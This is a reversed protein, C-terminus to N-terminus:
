RVGSGCQVLSCAVGLVLFLAAFHGRRILLRDAIYFVALNADSAFFLAGVFSGITVLRLLWIRNLIAKVIGTIGNPVEPRLAELATEVERVREEAALRAAKTLVSSEELNGLPEQHSVAGTESELVGVQANRHLGTARATGPALKKSSMAINGSVRKWEFGGVENQQSLCSNITYRSFGTASSAKALSQYTAVVHGEQLQQVAKGLLDNRMTRRKKKTPPPSWEDSEQEPSARDADTFATQSPKGRESVFEWEFGGAVDQLRDCCNRIAQRSIQTKKAADLTSTYTSVILGGKLKYVAGKPIGGYHPRKIVAGSHPRKKRPPSASDDDSETESPSKETKRSDISADDRLSESLTRMFGTELALAKDDGHNRPKPVIWQKRDSVTENQPIDKEPIQAGAETGSEILGEETSDQSKALWQWQFGGAEDREGDCCNVISLRPTGTEKNACLISPFTAVVWEGQLQQVPKSKSGGLVSAHLVDQPNTLWKWQFGGVEDREGNCCERILERGFGTEKKAGLLSTFNAVVRDGQLQQVPKASSLPRRRKVAGDLVPTSECEGAKDRKGLKASNLTRRRKVTGDSVPTSEFEFAKDRKGLKESNLPCMKKKVTGDSVPSSEFKDAKDRKGLKASNLPRMKKKVTVDLVPALDFEGAKYRKGLKANKLPRMKKEVAPKKKVAGGLVPKWEFEGATDRKGLICERIDNCPIFNAISAQNISSFTAVVKGGKWQQVAQPAFHRTLKKPQVSDSKIRAENTENDTLRSDEESADGPAPNARAEEEESRGWAKYQRFLIAHEEMYKAQVEPSAEWMKQLMQSLDDDTADPHEQKLTKMRQNCFTRFAAHNPDDPDKASAMIIASEGAERSM